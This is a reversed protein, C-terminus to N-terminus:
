QEESEGVADQKGEGRICGEDVEDTQLGPTGGCSLESRLGNAAEKEKKILKAVLRTLMPRISQEIEGMIEGVLNDMLIKRAEEVDDPLDPLLVGYHDSNRTWRRRFHRKVEVSGVALTMTFHPNSM